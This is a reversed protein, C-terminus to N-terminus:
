NCPYSPACREDIDDPETNNLHSPLKLSPLESSSSTDQAPAVILLLSELRTVSESIKLLLHLLAQRMTTLVIFLYAVFM